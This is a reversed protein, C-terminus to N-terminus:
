SNPAPRNARYEAAINVYNAGFILVAGIVVTASFPEAYLLAGVAIIIPLRAFDVPMIVAAPALSLARTLCFHAILGGFAITVVGPLSPLSPLAIDGDFGACILGFVAQMITLWFLISTISEVRTLLRTFVASGAFGIAAIAAAIVGPGISARWPETVILVGVFGVMAMAVRLKTLREGLVIVALFMAWIPSSFELAFVQALPAVTIAFFWLNQGIFHSLNRTAHLHLRTRQVSKLSGTAWGISLVLVVGILSRYLMIEFTDLEHSIARGAVAMATFSAIAGIMWIAARLPQSPTM